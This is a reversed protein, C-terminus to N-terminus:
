PTPSRRPPSGGAGTFELGLLLGRGRVDGICDHREQLRRLGAALRAGASGRGRRSATASRRDGAGQARRRRAASRQRADHLLPLRAARRRARHRRHDDGRLAAARRRADEVAHPHGAHRRRARVRVDRGTRGIGTQAEDLILLMGRARCHAKLAALYGAPLDLVGGSSLIPEAIFAALNGTCQRDLLEFRM